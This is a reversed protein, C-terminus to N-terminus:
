QSKFLEAYLHRISGSGGSAYAIKGPNSKAYTIFEPLNKSPFSPNVVLVGPARNIGAVPAIDRVFEFFTTWL